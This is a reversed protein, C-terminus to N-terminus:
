CSIQRPPEKLLIKNVVARPDKKLTCFIKVTNHAYEVAIFQIMMTSMSKLYQDFWTNEELEAIGKVNKKDHAGLQVIDEKCLQFVMPLNMLPWRYPITYERIM